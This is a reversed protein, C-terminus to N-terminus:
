SNNSRREMNQLTLTQGSSVTRDSGLDFVILVERSGATGNDDMLVAYRAGSGSAPIPGGSATWSFDKMQVLGRDNTDDETLVDWDTTNRAVAQGGATYGNGAAIENASIDSWTNTDVTPAAAATVLALYFQTPINQARYFGNLERAKGKNTVFGV